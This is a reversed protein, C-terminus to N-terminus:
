MTKQLIMLIQSYFVKLWSKVAQSLGCDSSIVSGLDRDDQNIKNQRELGKPVFYTGFPANLGYVATNQRESELVVAALKRIWYQKLLWIGIKM